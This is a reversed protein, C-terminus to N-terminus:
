WLSTHEEANGNRKWLRITNGTIVEIKTLASRTLTTKGDVTLVLKHHSQSTTTTAATTTTWQLSTPSSFAESGDVTTATTCLKRYALTKYGAPTWWPAIFTQQREQESNLESGPMIPACLGAKTFVGAKHGYWVSVGLLTTTAVCVVLLISKMMTTTSMTPKTSNRHNLTRDKTNNSDENNFMVRRPVYVGKAALEEGLRDAELTAKLIEQSLEDCQAQHSRQMDAVRSDHEQIAKSYRTHEEEIARDFDRNTEVDVKRRLCKEQDLEKQALVWHHELYKKKEELEELRDADRQKQVSRKKLEKALKVLNKSKKKSRQRETEYKQEATQLQRQLRSIKELLEVKSQHQQQQDSIWEHQEEGDHHVDMAFKVVSSRQQQHHHQNYSVSTPTSGEAGVGRRNEMLSPQFNLLADVSDDQSTDLELELSTNNFNVQIDEDDEDDDDDDDDDNDLVDFDLKEGEDEEVAGHRNKEDGYLLQDDDDDDSVDM